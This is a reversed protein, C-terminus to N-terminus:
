FSCECRNKHELSIKARSSVNGVGFNSARGVGETQCPPQGTAINLQVKCALNTYLYM